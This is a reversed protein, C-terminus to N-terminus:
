SQTAQPKVKLGRQAALREELDPSPRRLEINMRGSMESIIKKVDDTSPGQVCFLLNFIANGEGIESDVRSASIDYYGSIM